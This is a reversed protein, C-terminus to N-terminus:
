SSLASIGNLDINNLTSSNHLKNLNKQKYEPTFFLLKMFVYQKLNHDLYFNLFLITKKQLLRILM